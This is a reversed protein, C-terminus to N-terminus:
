ETGQCNKQFDAPSSEPEATVEAIQVGDGECHSCPKKASTPTCTAVLRYGKKPITEIYAPNRSDDAFCSRLQSICRTLAEDGSFTRPWVKDLLDRRNVVKGPHAALESLVAMTKPELRHCEEGRAMMNRDQCVLWDGIKLVSDAQMGNLDDRKKINNLAVSVEVPLM